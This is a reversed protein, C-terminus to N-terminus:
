KVRALSGAPANAPPKGDDDLAQLEDNSNVAFLWDDEGKSDPDLRIRKGSEEVTWTGASPAPLADGSLAYSGDAKLELAIDDGGFSGAFAKVDFGAPASSNDVESIVDTPLAEAAPKADAAAAPAAATAPEAPAATEVDRKCATNALVFACLVAAILIQKM